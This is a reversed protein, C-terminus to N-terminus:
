YSDIVGKAEDLAEKEDYFGWCSDLHKEEVHGCKECTESKEIIYGCVLGNIWQNFTEIEGKLVRKITEKVEETIEGYEKIAKDKSVCIFGIDSSDWVDTKAGVSLLIGGHEYVSVPLVIVQEGYIEEIWEGAEELSNIYVTDGLKDSFYSKPIEIDGLTHGKYRYFITGLTDWERPNESDEDTELRISFGKYEEKLIEM